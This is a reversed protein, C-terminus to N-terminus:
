AFSRRIDLRGGPLRTAMRVGCPCVIARADASKTFFYRAAQHAGRMEETAQEGLARVQADADAAGRKRLAIAGQPSHIMRWEWRAIIREAEHNGSM